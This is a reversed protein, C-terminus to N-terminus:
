TSGGRKIDEHLEGLYQNFHRNLKKNFLKNKDNIFGISIDDDNEADRKRKKYAKEDQEKLEIVLKSVLKKDTLKTIIQAESFGKGKLCQYLKKQEIYENESLKDMAKLKKLYTQEALQTYNQFEKHDQKSRQSQKENWKEDDEVTYNLNRLREFNVGEQQFEIQNLEDRAREQKDSLTKLLKEDKKKKEFDSYLDRRNEAKASNKLARIERLKQLRDTTTTQKNSM